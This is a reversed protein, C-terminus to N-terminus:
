KEGGRTYERIAEIAQEVSWALACCYGEKELREIWEVQQPRIRGSGSKLELFMGGFKGRILPIMLDPVGPKVGEDKLKRATMIARKGGNPIAFIPIRQLDCWQVVAVQIQHETPTITRYNLRATM